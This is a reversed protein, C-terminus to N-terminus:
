ICDGFSSIFSDYSDLSYKDFTDFASNYGLNGSKTQIDEDVVILVSEQQFQEIYENVIENIATENTETDELILSVVQSKEEIIAGNSDQFQGNTDFVTLGDPFLPTIINDVFSQFQQESVEGVGSIDRGFFLDVQILEPNHDNDILDENVGFSVTVDENVAQLVSEQQFQEIYENVIENIATENTETDELILSVVQSKEEVIAGNSDQFQGNTDFVTLGDPFLPTIINDVFSQFQQESVEGVGSIDRGFFLDVQILEPNRDSNILNDDIGFSITLDDQNGIQLVEAEQFQQRYADIIEQTADNNAATNEVFLSVVKTNERNEGKADFITLGDPFRPTIVNDVFRQFETESIQEGTSTNLEFYLDQQILLPTESNTESLNFDFM